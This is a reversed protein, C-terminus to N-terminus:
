CSILYVHAFKYASSSLYQYVSSHTTIAHRNSLAILYILFRSYHLCLCRYRPSGSLQTQGHTHTLEYHLILILCFYVGAAKFNTRALYILVHSFITESARLDHEVVKKRTHLIVTLHISMYLCVCM